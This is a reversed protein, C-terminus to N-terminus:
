RGALKRAVEESVRNIVKYDYLGGYQAGLDFLRAMKKIATENAEGTVGNAKLNWTYQRRNGAKLGIFKPLTAVEEQTMTTFVRVFDITEDFTNTYVEFKIEM